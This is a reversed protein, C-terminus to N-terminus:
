HLMNMLIVMALSIIMYKKSFGLSVLGYLLM